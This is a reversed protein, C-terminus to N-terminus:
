FAAGVAFKVVFPKTLVLSQNLVGIRSPNYAFILRFPVNLVPMFFRVELGTSKKIASTQGTTVLRAVALPNNPNVLLGPNSPDTLLPPTPEVFSTVPEFLGFPQGVDRVEGADFFMALRVPGGVNIVYEGNFLLTKNGGIEAGTAPDRPGITNLDFGRVSYEGGLFLKNFIPLETTSGYPRIYQGQLHLAVSTRPLLRHYWTTELRTEVFQTDGGVGAFDFAATYRVGQDPYIPSNVTDYVISPSIKGITRKGGLNILLEDALFPEATLASPTLYIPNIDAQPVTDVEYSYALYTRTFGTLLFGTTVTGGTSDITYQSPYIFSRSFLSIGATIPRDFLFPETFSVSYNKALSGKQLQVGLSEGRGLFNATQFGLQGFFGDLQSVGAGFTIQNRNQEEVKLRIDVKGEAGPTEDIKVSDDSELPKFYGLQNLRRVSMKLAEVNFVSGEALRLERRVVTDHTTTNGVFTIRNVLYQKGETVNYTLNMVPKYTAPDIPKGTKPDQGPFDPMPEDVFHFYGGTGYIQQLKDRGKTITSWDVWEGTKVKLVSRIYDTKVAKNGTVNLTGFRFRQGEDVPIRLRVYRETHDSSDGIVDLQQLGLRAQMYGNERYFDTVKQIDDGLKQEQYKGSGTVWSWFGGATNDKMQSALKNSTFARAGDFKVERIKLQPGQDIQYTLVVLKSVGQVASMSPTVTAYQYGEDAYLQKVVAKVRQVTSEDIFSDLRLELGKKKLEEEIKSTEVVKSGLYEVGKLKPREEFHYVVEKGMVGNDYPQDLVQIWLNDLFNTKWLATWDAQLSDENYPVWIHLDPQSNQTKIYYLYTEPLILPQNVPHFQLLRCRVLPPSNAPPQQDAPVDPCPQTPVAKSVDFIPEPGIPEGPAAGPLVAPPKSGCAAAGALLMALATARVGTV